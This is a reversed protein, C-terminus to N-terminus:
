CNARVPIKVNIISMFEHKPLFVEKKEELLCELYLEIAEKINKETEELTEGQTHCGQLIPVYAVYGGENAREYVVIFNINKNLQKM